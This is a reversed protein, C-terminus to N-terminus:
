SNSIVAFKKSAPSARDVAFWETSNAQMRRNSTTAVPNAGAAISCTSDTHLRVLATGAALAVSQASVGSITIPAQDIGPDEASQALRGGGDLGVRAFETVYLKPM